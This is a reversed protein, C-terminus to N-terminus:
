WEEEEEEQNIESQYKIEIGEIEDIIRQIEVLSDITPGLKEWLDKGDQIGGTLCKAEQLKSDMRKGILELRNFTEDINREAVRLQENLNEVVIEYSKECKHKREYDYEM